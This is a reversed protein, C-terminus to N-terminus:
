RVETCADTYLLPFSPSRGSRKDFTTTSESYRSRRSCSRRPFSLTAGSTSASTSETVTNSFVKSGGSSYGTSSPFSRRTSARSTRSCSTPTDLSDVVGRTRRVEFSARSRPGGAMRLSEASFDDSYYDRDLQRGSAKGGALQLLPRAPPCANSTKSTKWTDSIRVAPTKPNLTRPMKSRWKRRCSSGRAPSRSDRSAPKSARSSATVCKGPQGSQHRRSELRVEANKKTPM